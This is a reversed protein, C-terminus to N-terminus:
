KLATKVRIYSLGYNTIAAGFCLAMILVAWSNGNDTSVGGAIFAAIIFLVGKIPKLGLLRSSRSTIAHAISGAILVIGIIIHFILVTTQLASHKHPQFNIVTTLLVGLIFEALLMIIIWKLAREIIHYDEVKM